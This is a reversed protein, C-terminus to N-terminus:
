IIHQLENHFDFEINRKQALEPTLIVYGGDLSVILKRAFRRYFKKNVWCVYTRISTPDPLKSQSFAYKLIERPPLPIPYARILTRLVMRETKTLTIVTSHNTVFRSDVSADLGLLLYEGPPFCKSTDFYSHIIKYIEASTASKSATLDYLSSDKLVNDTLAMIPIVSLYSRLGRVYEREDPLTDPDVIIILRYFTSIESTARHPTEAKAVIGMYKFADALANGERKSKNIILIM